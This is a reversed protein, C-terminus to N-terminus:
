GTSFITYELRKVNNSWDKCYDKKVKMQTYIYIYIGPHKFVLDSQILTQSHGEASTKQREFVIELTSVIFVLVTALGKKERERERERKERKETIKPSMPSLIVRTQGQKLLVATIKM